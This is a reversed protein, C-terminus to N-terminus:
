GACWVSAVAAGLYGMGLRHVCLWCAAVHQVAVVLGVAMQPQTMRQAVLIRNLPSRCGAPAALCPVHPLPFAACRPAAPLSDREVAAEVGGEGGGVGVGGGWVGGVTAGEREASGTWDGRSEGVWRWRWVLVGRCARVWVWRAVADIFLNPLLALLYARVLACVEAPQGLAALLAPLSM